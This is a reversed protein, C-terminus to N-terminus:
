MDLEILTDATPKLADVSKPYKPHYLHLQYEYLKILKM